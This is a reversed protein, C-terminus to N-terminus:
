RGASGDEDRGGSLAEFGAVIDLLEETISEQRRRRVSQELQDIREEINSEASQMSAIRAANEAALSEAVAAVLRAFLHSRLLARLAGEPDRPPEPLGRGPWRERRLRDLLERDPPLLRFARQAFSAGGEPRNGFVLVQDAKGAGIWRDLSLVIERVTPVIGSPSAPVPVLEDVELGEGLLAERVRVGMVLVMPGGRDPGSDALGEAVHEALRRNFAGVMGQDSGLVVAALAKSPGSTLTESGPEVAGLVIRLGLEVTRRIELSAEKARNFQRLNVAAMTQMTRVVGHLDRAGDLQSRLEELTAM